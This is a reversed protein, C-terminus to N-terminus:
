TRVNISTEKGVPQGRPSAPIQREQVHEVSKQQWVPLAGPCIDTMVLDITEEIDSDEEGEHCKQLPAQAHCNNLLQPLHDEEISIIRQLHGRAKTQLSPQSLGSVLTGRTSSSTM